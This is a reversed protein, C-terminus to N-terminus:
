DDTGGVRDTLREDQVAPRYGADAPYRFLNGFRSNM